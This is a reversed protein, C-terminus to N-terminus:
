LKIAAILAGVLVVMTTIVTLLSMRFDSRLDKFDSRLDKFDSQLDKFNVRLDQFGCQVGELDGRIARLEADLRDFGRGMKQELREELGDLDRKTAVDAWGVPPLHSMPVNAHQAGLVEELRQYLHHRSEENITM